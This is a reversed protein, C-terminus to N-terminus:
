KNMIGFLAFTGNTFTFFLKDDTGTDNVVSAFGTHGTSEYTTPCTGIGSDEIPHSMQYINVGVDPIIFAPDSVVAFNCRETTDDSGTYEGSSNSSLKGTDVDIGYLNGEWKNLNIGEIRGLTAGENNNEDFGVDFVGAGFGTGGAFTGTIQLENTTGSITVSGAQEINGDVYVEVTGTYDFVTTSIAIDYLVNASPSLLLIRNDYVLATIDTYDTGNLTAAGTFYGKPNADEDNDITGIGTISTESLDLGQPNSIELNFSENQEFDTDGNVFVSVSATRSSAAITLQGNVAIYDGDAVSATGDITTYDVTLASVADQNLTITFVLEVTDTDGETVTPSNITLSSIDDNNITGVGTISNESLELGQPNSIELNFSEDQEFVTDGNAFVSVSATRSGEAITLQGNVATYDSDAETATGDTTSYDVTLTSVADESLTITFVLESTDTDGETVTPSNITLSPKIVPDDDGSSGCASLGVLGVLGSLVLVLGPFRNQPPAIRSHNM